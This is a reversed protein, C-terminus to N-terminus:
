KKKDVYADRLSQLCVEQNDKRIFICAWANGSEKIHSKFTTVTEFYEFTCTVPDKYKIRGDSITAHFHRSGKYVIEDAQALFGAKFLDGITVRMNRPSCIKQENLAQGHSDHDVPKNLQRLYQERLEKLRTEVVRNNVEEVKFFANWMKPKRTVSYSEEIKRTLPKLHSLVETKNTKPDTFTVTGRNGIKMKVVIGDNKYVLSDGEKLLGSDFLKILNVKYGKTTPDDKDQKKKKLISSEEQKQDHKRKLARKVHTKM